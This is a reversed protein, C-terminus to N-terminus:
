LLWFAYVSSDWVLYFKSWKNLAIDFDPTPLVSAMKADQDPPM